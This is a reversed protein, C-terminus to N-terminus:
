RAPPLKGKGSLPMSGILSDADPMEVGLKELIESLMGIMGEKADLESQVSKRFDPSINGNEDQVSIMDSNEARDKKEIKNDLKMDSHKSLAEELATEGIFNGNEDLLKIKTGNGVTFYEPIDGQYGLRSSITSGSSQNEMILHPRNDSDMIINFHYDSETM